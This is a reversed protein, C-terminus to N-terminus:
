ASRRATNTQLSYKVSRSALVTLEDTCAIRASRTQARCYHKWQESRLHKIPSRKWVGLLKGSWDTSGLGQKLLGYLSVRGFAPIFVFKAM